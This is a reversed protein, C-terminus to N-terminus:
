VDKGVNWVLDGARGERVVFPWLKADYTAVSPFPPLPGTSTEWFQEPAKYAVYKIGVLVDPYIDKGVQVGHYEADPWVQHLARLIVGSGVVLWIRSPAVMDAPLAARINCALEEILVASQLGFPLMTAAPHQEVYKEAAARVDKMLYTNAPEIVTAGWDAAQQTLRTRTKGARPPAVFITAQKGTYYAAVTLALQAYGTDPSVYVFETGTQRALYPILARQKTGGELMDDRVVNVSVGPRVEYGAVVLEPNTASVECVPAPLDNIMAYVVPYKAALDTQAALAVEPDAEGKQWVWIPRVKNAGGRAGLVGRYRCQPLYGIAYLAMVECITTTYVDTIHIAMNGGMDLVAWAKHLSTLLFYVLWDNLRPYSLVSQGELTTYVEFDFFPPSTFVLDYTQTSLTASEFPEYNITVATQKNFAAIIADHGAKLATNPDYATYVQVPVALAAILRDGWGASIDLMRTGGLLKIVSLALTPKFQTAEKTLKYVAERLAPSTYETLSAWLEAHHAPNAWWQLPSETSDSRRASLRAEEQFLDGILDIQEYDTPRAEITTYRGDFTFPILPSRFAINEPTFPQHSLQPTYAQLRTFMQMATNAPLSLRKYPFPLTNNAILTSFQQQVAAKGQRQILNVFPDTSTSVPNKATAAAPKGLGLGKAAAPKGLGPGKVTTTAPKGLGLGKAAAAAPKGLGLGKVTAAAPKGLGLGKATAAAPKSVAPKSIGQKHWVWLPYTSQVMDEQELGIVGEFKSDYLGNIKPLAASVWPGHMYLAMYGGEKLATWSATLMKMDIPEVVETFVVDFSQIVTPSGTLVRQESSSGLRAIMTAYVDTMEPMNSYGTYSMGLSMAALLREGYMAYPDLWQKGRLNDYGFIVRLAATAWSANFLPVDSVGTYRKITLRLKSPTLWDAGTTRVTSMVYQALRYLMDADGWTQAISPLGGVSVTLRVDEAFVESLVNINYFAYSLPTMVKVYQDRFKNVSADSMRYAERTIPPRYNVLNRFLAEPAKVFTRYYPYALMATAVYEYLLASAGELDGQRFPVLLQNLLEAPYEDPVRSTDISTGTVKVGPTTQVALTLDNYIKQLRGLMFLGEMSWKTDSSLVTLRVPQAAVVTRGLENNYWVGNTFSMNARLHINSLQGHSFIFFTCANRELCASVHAMILDSIGHATEYPTLNLFAKQDIFNMTFISGLSGFVADTDTYTSGFHLTRDVALVPTSMPPAYADVTCGWEGILVAAVEVPLVHDNIVYLSRYRLLMRTVTELDAFTLLLAINCRLLTEGVRVGSEVQRYTPSTYTTRTQFNRIHTDIEMREAAGVSLPRVQSLRAPGYVLDEGVVGEAHALSLLWNQFMRTLSTLEPSNKAAQHTVINLLTNTLLMRMYDRDIDRTTTVATVVEKVIPTVKRSGPLDLAYSVLLLNANTQVSNLVLIAAPRQEMITNMSGPTIVCNSVTGTYRNGELRCVNGAYYIPLLARSAGLIIHQDRDTIPVGRISYKLALAKVYADERGEIKFQVYDNVQRGITEINYLIEMVKKSNLSQTVCWRKVQTYVDQNLNTIIDFWDRKLTTLLFTYLKRWLKLSSELDSKGLFEAFTTHKALTVRENYAKDDEDPRQFEIFFYSTDYTDMLATTVVGMFLQFSPTDLPACMINATPAAEATLVSVFYRTGNLVGLSHSTSNPVAADSIVLTTTSKGVSQLKDLVKTLSLNVGREDVPQVLWNVVLLSAGRWGALVTTIPCDYATVRDLTLSNYYLDQKYEAREEVVSIDVDPYIAALRRTLEGQMGFLEVIATPKLNLQQLVVDFVQGWQVTMYPLPQWEEYTHPGNVWAYLFAGNRVELDLFSVFYGLNTVEGEASIAGIRLLEQEGSTIATVPVHLLFQRPPIVRIYLSLLLHEIDTRDIEPVRNPLMRTFTDESYIRHVQGAITRGARGARQVASNRSIRNVELTENGTKTVGALKEYGTDVVFGVDQITLSTEAVNTAIIIKRIGPSQTNVIRLLENTDEISGHLGYVVYNTQARLGATIAKTLRRIDAKGAVFVLIHGSAVSYDNHLKIAQAAALNYTTVPKNNPPVIYHYTVPLSRGPYNLTVVDYGPFTFTVPSASLMVLHPVTAGANRLWLWLYLLTDVDKSREHVEDVFLIDFWDFGRVIVGDRFCERFIREVLHGTTMYVLNTYKSNGERRETYKKAQRVGSGVSLQEAGFFPAVLDGARKALSVTATRTIETVACVYGQMAMYIPIALSKGTGTEATVSVILNTTIQTSIEPLFESIFLGDTPSAM